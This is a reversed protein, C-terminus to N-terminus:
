SLWIQNFNVNFISIFRNRIQFTASWENIPHNNFIHEIGHCCSVFVYKAHDSIWDYVTPNIFLQKMWLLNFNLHVLNFTFTVNPKNTSPNHNSGNRPDAMLNRPTKTNLKCNWRRPDTTNVSIHVCNKCFMCRYTTIM